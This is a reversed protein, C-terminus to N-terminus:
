YFSKKIIYRDSVDQYFSKSIFFRKAYMNLIQNAFALKFWIDCNDDFQKLFIQITIQEILQFVHQRFQWDLNNWTLIFQNYISIFEATKVHKFLNQAYIRSNKHKKANKLTYKIFQLYNLVTSAREKFKKILVNYWNQLSM